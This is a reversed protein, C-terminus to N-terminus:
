GDTGGPQHAVVRYSGKGAGTNLTFDEASVVGLGGFGMPELADFVSKSVMVKGETDLTLHYAKYRHGRQCVSCDYESQYPRAIDEVVFTCARLTPHRLVYGGKATFSLGVAPPNAVANAFRLQGLGGGKRLNEYVTESVIVDGNGDLNLHYTKVEHFRNCVPCGIPEAYPRGRLELTYTVGRLTPHSLRVGPM